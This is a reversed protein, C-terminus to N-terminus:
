NKKCPERGKTRMRVRAHKSLRTRTTVLMIPASYNLHDRLDGAHNHRSEDHNNDHGHECLKGDLEEHEERVGVFGRHLNADYPFRKLRQSRFEVKNQLRKKKRKM